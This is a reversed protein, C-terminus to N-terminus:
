KNLKCAGYYTHRDGNAKNVDSQAGNLLPNEVFPAHKRPPTAVVSQKFFKNRSDHDADDKIPFYEKINKEKSAM